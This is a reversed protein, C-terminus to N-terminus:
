FLGFFKKFIVVNDEMTQTVQTEEIPSTMWMNQHMMQSVTTKLLMIIIKDGCFFPLRELNEELIFGCIARVIPQITIRDYMWASKLEGHGIKQIANIHGVCFHIKQVQGPILKSECLEVTVMDNKELSLRHLDRFQCEIRKQVELVMEFLNTIPKNENLHEPLHIMMQSQEFHVQGGRVLQYRGLKEALVRMRLGNLQMLEVMGKLTGNELCVNVLLNKLGLFTRDANWLMKITQNIKEEVEKPFNVRSSFHHM